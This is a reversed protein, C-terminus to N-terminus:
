KSPALQVYIITHVCLNDPVTLRPYSSLQM